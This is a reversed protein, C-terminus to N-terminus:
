GPSNMARGLLVLCLAIVTITGLALCAIIRAARIVTRLTSPLGVSRQRRLTASALTL